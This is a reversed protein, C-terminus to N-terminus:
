RRNGAHAARRRRMVLGGAVSGLLLVSGGAMLAYPQRSPEPAEGSPVGGFPTKKVQAAVYNTATPGTSPKATPTATTTTTTNGNVIVLRDATTRDNNTGPNHNGNDNNQGPQTTSNTPTPAPTTPTPNPTSPTSSPSSGPKEKVTVEISVPASVIKCTARHFDTPVAATNTTVRFADLWAKKDSANEIKITHQGYPLNQPSKWLTFGGNRVENVPDDNADRSPDEVARLVDDLYIKVPGGERDHPGIYQVGTGTFKLEATDGQSSTEHFDNHIHHESSLRDNFETWGGVYTIVHDRPNDEDNGNNVTAEGNPPAFDVVIDKPEIRIVGARDILNRDAIGSLLPLQDDARLKDKIVNTGTPQLIGQWAGTVQVNGLVNMQAGEAYFGPSSFWGDRYALSWKLDLAGGVILDTAFTLQTRLRIPKYKAISYGNAGECEYDIVM